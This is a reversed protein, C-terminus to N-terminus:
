NESITNEAFKKFNLLHKSVEKGFTRPMILLLMRMKFNIPIFENIMTWSTTSDSIAKFHNQQKVFIGDSEFTIDLQHPLARNSITLTLHSDKNNVHYFLRIKSGVERPVGDIYAYGKFNQHWFKLNDVNDLKELFRTLNLNILVESRHKM